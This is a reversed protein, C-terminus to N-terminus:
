HPPPLCLGKTSAINSTTRTKVKTLLFRTWQRPSFPFWGHQWLKCIVLCSMFVVKARSPMLSGDWSAKSSSGTSGVACYAFLSQLSGNIDLHFNVGSNKGSLHTTNADELICVVFCQIESNRGLYPLHTSSYFLVIVTIVIFYM